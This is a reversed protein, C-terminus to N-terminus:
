CFQYTKKNCDIGSNKLIRQNSRRQCMHTKFFLSCLSLTKIRPLLEGVTSILLCSDFSIQPKDAANM